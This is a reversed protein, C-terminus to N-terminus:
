IKRKVIAAPATAFLRYNLANRIKRKVIAAPAAAFLRFNLANLIKRKVGARLCRRRWASSLVLILIVNYQGAGACEGRGVHLLFHRRYESLM